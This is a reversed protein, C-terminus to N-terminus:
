QLKPPVLTRPYSPVLIGKDGDDAAEFYRLSRSYDRVWTGVYM